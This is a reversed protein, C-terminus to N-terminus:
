DSFFFPFGGFPSRGSFIGGGDRMMPERRRKAIGGQPEGSMLVIFDTDKGIERSAGEDSIILSSGPLVVGAIREVAEQPIAIRDLAAKAAAVDAEPAEGDTVSDGSNPKRYMSVASWRMEGEANLQKLATYIFTGLPKDVERIAIPGELIPYNAKRIYFRQTKRSVFMSVPSTDRAAAEAAEAANDKAAAAAKAEEESRAAADSKLQAQSKAAELQAQAEAVRALAKAKTIEAQQAKEPSVGTEPARQADQLLAAAKAHTVEATQLSRLAAAAQAAARAAAMRTEQERKGAAEAEAAKAAAAARLMQLQATGWAADAERLSIGVRTTRGGDRATLPEFRAATNTRSKFLAPHSIDAPVIDDRVVIVRMGLETVQFLQQAFAAPLRVCGHSAPYGPLMGAHLAIGTWTIREMFPMSGDEYLNSHHLEKKQVISYIGAPTEFGTAGTSVPAQLMKGDADYITVRQSSLAVIAM